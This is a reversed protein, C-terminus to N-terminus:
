RSSGEPQLLSPAISTPAGKLDSRRAATRDQYSGTTNGQGGMNVWWCGSLFSVSSHNGIYLDM